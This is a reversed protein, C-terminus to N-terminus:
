ISEVIMQGFERLNLRIIQSFYRLGSKVGTEVNWGSLVLCTLWHLLFILIKLGRCVYDLFCM